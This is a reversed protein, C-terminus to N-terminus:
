VILKIKKFSKCLSDNLKSIIFSSAKFDPSITTLLFQSPELPSLIILLKLAISSLSWFTKLIIFSLTKFLKSKSLIIPSPAVPVTLTYFIIFSIILPGSVIINENRRESGGL